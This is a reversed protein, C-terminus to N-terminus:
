NVLFSFTNSPTGGSGNRVQVTFSGAALVAAGSLQTSTRTLGSVVCSTSTPCGPGLFFVEANSTDYNSGTITFNFAQGHVPPNPSRTMGSINPTGLNVTLTKGGSTLGTSNNKVTVTFSGAALVAQGSVQTSSGSASISCPSSCGPGSFFITSNSGSFDSGTLTITFAQGTIPPNPSTTLQNIVPASPPNSVTLSVGNSTLGTTNNKVTVTFNGAALIAQGSVQTSSGSASISCPSSCGPGSFFITSNSSAFNSGTLTINFAQGNIPPNPSTTIQNIVPAPPNSVTLSVGGSTLGTSNNKVTVTFTGAALIAQGSVQTASGSANISCPSSCGPGSFFITSSSGSFNSGTLTITFAQGTIPPTPSTTLQSIVPSPNAVTLTVGGSTLGTSNNKVTVTFSGAALIAQGSVQTNSGSANISCPSSCGPGSFFITSNSSAFNSGTLTITFAQGTIPPNPSTTLQNIVPASPPSSVTLSVGSSTLGTSNNKLTVTFTGTALVAQGSVQTSSGSASISCPSSCGPGSFFITSNAADFNTGTLTLTFAQGNIPPNPSTTIQNIVPTPPNSVTLSVGGSTLGTSNNKITVTFNGAALVAQGSVQTSSGSANISCPSTCGPGSFFVTSNSSDFNSGTLTLTFAQGNIPPNPSTTIGSITPTPTGSSVTLSSTNSPTGSPGNRVQVTFSGAALVAAGNLQNATRTLGSVVCATNNPCGPGLFFVEANSTYNDGTITFNFPQGTIPTSPSTTLGSITPSPLTVSSVVLTATATDRLGASNIVELTINYTGEGFRYPLTSLIGASAGNIEWAYSNITGGGAHSTSAFDIAVSGGPVVTYTLTNGNTGSKGGGTMTFSATPRGSVTLQVTDSHSISGTGTITLLYDGPSISSTIPIILTSAQGSTVTAPNFSYSAGSPLGTVSLNISQPSGSLTNTNITFAATDGLTNVQLFPITNLSFDSPSPGADVSIFKIADIGVRQSPPTSQIVSNDLKIYGSSTFNWAQENGVSLRVWKDTNSRHSIPSSVVSNAGDPYISYTVNDATANDPVHVYVEYRGSSLTPHWEAFNTSNGGVFLKASLYYGADDEAGDANEVYGSRSDNDIIKSKANPLVSFKIPYGRNTTNLYAFFRYDGTTLDNRSGSFTQTQNASFSASSINFIDRNSSDNDYFRGAVGLNTFTRTIPSALTITANLPQNAIGYVEYNGLSPSATSFSFYPVLIEDSQLDGVTKFVRHIATDISISSESPSKLTTAEQQSMYGYPWTDSSGLDPKKIELHLHNNVTASGNGWAHLTSGSNGIIGIKQGRGIRSGINGVSKSFLHANLSLLIDGSTILHEVIVMNGMNHSPSGKSDILENYDFKRKLVGYNIAYAPTDTNRGGNGSSYDVGTHLSTSSGACVGGLGCNPSVSVQSVPHRFSLSLVSNLSAHASSVKTITCIFVVICFTVITAIIFARKM